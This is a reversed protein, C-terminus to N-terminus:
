YGDLPEMGVLFQRYALLYRAIVATYVIHSMEGAMILFFLLPTALSKSKNPKQVKGALNFGLLGLM